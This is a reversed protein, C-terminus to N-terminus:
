QWLLVVQRQGGSLQHPYLNLPFKEPMEVRRM